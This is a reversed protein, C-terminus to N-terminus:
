ETPWNGHGRFPAEWTVLAGHILATLGEPSAGPSPGGFDTPGGHSVPASFSVPNSNTFKPYSPNITMVLIEPLNEWGTICEHCVKWSASDTVQHKQSRGGRAPCPTSHQSHPHPTEPLSQIGPSAIGRLGINKLSSFVM